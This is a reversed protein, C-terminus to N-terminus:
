LVGDSHHSTMLCVFIKRLNHSLIMKGYKAPMSQPTILKITKINDGEAGYCKRIHLTKILNELSRLYM